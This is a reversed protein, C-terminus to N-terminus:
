DAEEEEEEVRAKSDWVVSCEKEGSSFNSGNFSVSVAFTLDTREEVFEEGEAEGEEVWKKEEEGEEGEEGEEVENGLVENEEEILQPVVVSVNGSAGVKGEVVNESGCMDDFKVWVKGSFFGEGELTLTSGASVTESSLKTISPTPYFDFSGCVEGFNVGNFAVM